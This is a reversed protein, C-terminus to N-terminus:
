NAEMEPRHYGLVTARTAVSLLGDIVFIASFSTPSGVMTSLHGWTASRLLDYERFLTPVDLGQARRMEGHSCAAALLADVRVDRTADSMACDIVRTIVSALNNQREAEEIAAWPLEQTNRDWDAMIEGVQALLLPYLAAYPAVEATRAAHIRRAAEVVSESAAPRYPEMVVGLTSRTRAGPQFRDVAGDEYIHAYM